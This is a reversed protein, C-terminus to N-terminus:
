RLQVQNYREVVDNRFKMCNICRVRKTYSQFWINDTFMESATGFENYHMEAHGRAQANQTFGVSKGCHPCPPLVTDHKM